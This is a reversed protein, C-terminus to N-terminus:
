RNSHQKGYEKEKKNTNIIKHEQRILSFEENDDELHLQKKIKFWFGSYLTLINLLDKCINSPSIGIGIEPDVV